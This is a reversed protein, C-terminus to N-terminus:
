AVDNASGWNRHDNLRNLQKSDCLSSSDVGECLLETPPLWPNMELAAYAEEGARDECGRLPWPACAPM